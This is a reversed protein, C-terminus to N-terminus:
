RPRELATILAQLMLDRGQANPHIGDAYCAPSWGPVAAIDFTQVRRELLPRLEACALDGSEIEELLPYFLWVVRGRYSSLLAEVSKAWTRDAPDSWPAFLSPFLRRRPGQTVRMLKYWAHSLPRRKPQLSEGEWRNLAVLDDSNTVFVATGANSLEPHARLFALENELSWAPCAVPHVDREIARALRAALTNDQDVYAGGDVTSDGVLLVADPGPPRDHDVRLGAANTRWAYRGSMAGRTQALFGYGFGEDRRFLPYDSLQLARAVIEAAVLLGLGAGIATLVWGM